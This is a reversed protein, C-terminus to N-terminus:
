IIQQEPNQDTPLNPDVKRMKTTQAEAATPSALRKGLKVNQLSSFAKFCLTENSAM